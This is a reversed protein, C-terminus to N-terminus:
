ENHSMRQHRWERRKDNIWDLLVAIVLSIFQIVVLAGLAAVPLFVVVVLLNALTELM